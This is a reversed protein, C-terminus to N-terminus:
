VLAGGAAGSERLPSNFPPIGSRRLNRKWREVFAAENLHCALTVAPIAVAAPLLPLVAMNERLMELVILFVERTLKWYGGSEGRVKGAGSRLGALYESKNLAGEVETCVSGASQWHVAVDVTGHIFITYLLERPVPSLVIYTLVRVLVKPPGVRVPAMTM